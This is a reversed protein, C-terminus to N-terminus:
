ASHVTGITAPTPPKSAAIELFPLGTLTGKRSVCQIHFLKDNTNVFHFGSGVAPLSVLLDNLFDAGINLFNANIGLEPEIPSLTSSGLALM